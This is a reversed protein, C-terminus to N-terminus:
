PASTRALEGRTGSARRPARGVRPTAPVEVGVLDVARDRRLDALERLQRPQSNGGRGRRGALEGRTGSARRAARGGRSTAPVEVVGLDVARDRGLEALERPQRLQSNGGRGRRGARRAVAGRRRLCRLSLTRTGSARRPARGVRSTAPGEVVVRDGARERGLDALERPQIEQSNGGRGRRGARRAVAGRRRLSRLSLQISPRIGVSIPMSVASIARRTGGADGSARRPARGGRSTAPPELVVLDGARDRALDALERRQPPQSNGGRGRRGARRAVSGRRRLARLSLSISPVNGIARQSM